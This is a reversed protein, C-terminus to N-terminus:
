LRLLGQNKLKKKYKVVVKRLSAKDIAWKNLYTTKEVLRYQRILVTSLINKILFRPARLVSILCINIKIIDEIAKRIM